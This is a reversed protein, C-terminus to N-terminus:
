GMGEIELIQQGASKVEPPPPPTDGNNLGSPNNTKKIWEEDNLSRAKEAAAKVMSKYNAVIFQNELIQRAVKADEVSHTMDAFSLSELLSDELIKTDTGEPIGFELTAGKDNLELTIGKFESVISSVPQDWNQIRTLEATEAQVRQKEADPTKIEHQMERLAVRDRGAEIRMDILGQKASDEDYKESESDYQHYKRKIYDQAEEATIGKETLLLKTTMAEIPEMEDVKMEQLATYLEINQGGKGVYDNLDKLFDSAFEVKSDTIEEIQRTLEPVNQLTEFANADEFEKSTKFRGDSREDFWADIVKQTEETGTTPPNEPPPETSADGTPPAEAPPETGSTNEPPTEGSETGEPPAEGTPTAGEATANAEAERKNLLEVIAEDGETIM